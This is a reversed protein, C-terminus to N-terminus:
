SAVGLTHSYLSYIRHLASPTDLFIWDMLTIIKMIYRHGLQRLALEDAYRRYKDSVPILHHKGHETSHWRHSPLLCGSFDAQQSFIM